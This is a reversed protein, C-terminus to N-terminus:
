PFSIMELIKDLSSMRKTKVNAEIYSSGRNLFPDVWSSFFERTSSNINVKCLQYRHLLTAFVLITLSAIRLFTDIWSLDQGKVSVTICWKKETWIKDYTTKFLHSQSDPSWYLLWCCHQLIHFQTWQIQLLYHHEYQWPGETAISQVWSYFHYTKFFRTFVTSYAREM